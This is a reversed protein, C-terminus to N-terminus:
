LHESAMQLPETCAATPFESWGTHPHTPAPYGSHQPYKYVLQPFHLLSTEM